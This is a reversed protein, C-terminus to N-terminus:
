LLVSCVCLLLYSVRKFYLYSLPCLDRISVVWCWVQGLIGFPFTFFIVIFMVFMVFLLWGDKCLCHKDRLLKVNFNIEITILNLM